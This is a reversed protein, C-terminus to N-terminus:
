IAGEEILRALTSLDIGLHVDPAPPPAKLTTVFEVLRTVIADEPSCAIRRGHYIGRFAIEM